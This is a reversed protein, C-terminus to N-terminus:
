IHILSAAQEDLIITCNPHLQLISAPLNTNVKGHIMKYVADSKEKGSALLVIHKTFMINKIGMTIAYNPVEDISNFFRSNDVRTKQDLTVIFTENDFPTGPENFGIHGNTGIGLIQLDLKNKKLKENYALTIEDLKRPDNGPMHINIPNIDIHKFLNEHMFHYYSKPHFQELGIYEDLNFSIVNKFTIMDKNYADILYKYLGLPTSGTALGIKLDPIKKIINIVIESAKKSVEDYNKCVIIEM